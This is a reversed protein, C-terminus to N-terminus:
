TASKSCAHLAGAAQDIVTRYAADCQGAVADLSFRNRVLAQGNKGLLRRRVPDDLLEAIRAAMEHADCRTIIGADASRVERWINVHESLVVPVGCIMAEVASIGFAESYSPLVFIDADRLAALKHEGDLHGAFTTRDHAGESQLWAELQPKLGDDPGAIVLHVDDRGRVLRGFARALVDLGKSAHIRGLFLVMKRDGIEGHRRRFAGKPPLRDFGAPDIGNGIVVGKPNQAYPSALRMEEDTTYHVAGAHRLVRDQFLVETLKKRWRHHARLYPALSGHPCILYPVGHRRCLAGAVMAHFFYLAHIHVVDADPIADALARALPLSTGWFRPFQVPFYQIDFGDVHVPRDLPVDLVGIGDVNVSGDANTTYVAVDHGRAAAVRALDLCATPVGGARPALNAIVHLIKM